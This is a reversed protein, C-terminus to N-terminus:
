QQMKEGQAYQLWEKNTIALSTKEGDKSDIIRNIAMLCKRAVNYAANADVGNPMTNANRSDFFHGNADAVPSIFFDYDGIMNQMQLMLRMLDMLRELHTKETLAFISVKLNGNIDIGADNFASKFEDTLTIKKYEWQNSHEPNRFSKIRDGYSCITWNLKTGDAKKTFKGYDFVFEFWDKQENYIIINFKSLFDRASDVNEYRTDFFNVFGTAPDINSINWAPVYFICGCQKGLKKFSEFKGALQLAHLLGGPAKVDQQKKDVYYNLKEIVAKEFQQYVNKEIKQRGQKFGFNLDEMALVADNEIMMKTIVHIVQSLYGKKLEKINEINQWNLRAQAREDEKKSLLEKYPITYTQQNYENVIDNLSMQKEINGNLDILTLYILNREGRNIGIIHKIGGNKIVTRVEENISSKKKPSKFNLTIPVHFVFKDVTYRRNKIINYAFTSETKENKPNKNSIPKNAAHVTTRKEDLSRKRYFVEAQGNLKYVIDSLNRKDFLMKWYLTHMNPTGKSHESFDKNWIQFLYIKGEDVLQDVYSASVLRTNLLYGQQEVENTFENINNYQNSDRFKFGYSSYKFGNSEYKALFDKYCDILIEIKGQAEDNRIIIKGESNLCSPPCRWGLQQATGSCKRMFAGFGMPLAIQKYVIKEYCDDENPTETNDFAHSYSQDMIALYYQNDKLLIVSKNQSENNEDWGALLKANEFNLKIKEKSYPKRTLWSRVKDYLPTVIKLEDWAARLPTDFRNDKDTEDGSGLLPKIFHQLEKYCDMLDKIKAIDEESQNINEHNGNLIDVANNKAREIRGIINPESNNTLVNVGLRSFYDQIKMSNGVFNNLYDIPFSKTAKFMKNTKDELVEAKMKKKSINTLLDAIQMKIAKTFVDYHGFIRQSINTLGLDNAIYIRAIDYQEITCLLTKLSTPEDGRIVPDLQNCMSKIAECMEEDSTFQQPLWSLTERDSLLMKYLPKLLPLKNSNSNQQQNYLNVYENLGQIRTGDEQTIGGIITNYDAIQKQTISKTFHGLKFCDKVSTGNLINELENEITGFENAVDSKAIMEFSAMNDIFMPLNEHILRYAIATSKAESSYMNSRVKHYGAFYSTFDKFHDVLVKEKPTTVFDPLINTFLEKKFLSKYSETKEFVSVIQKRLNEKVKEFANNENETRDKKDALSYYEELSDYQEESKLKLELNRLCDSIFLKHYRDIIEKVKKYEEARVEDQNILDKKEINELTKGIPKLEFSLTKSLSYLGTLDSLSKM